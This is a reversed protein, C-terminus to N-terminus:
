ARGGKQNMRPDFGAPAKILSQAQKRTEHFDKIKDRALELMTYCLGLDSLPGHVAVDDKDLDYVISLHFVTPEINEEPKKEETEM